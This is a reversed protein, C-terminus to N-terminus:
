EVPGSQELFIMGERAMLGTKRCLADVKVFAAKVKRDDIVLDALIMVGWVQRLCLELEAIREDRKDASM